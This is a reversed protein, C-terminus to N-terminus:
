ARGGSVAAGSSVRVSGIPSPFLRPIPNDLMLLMISVMWRIGAVALYDRGTM